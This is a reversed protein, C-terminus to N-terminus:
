PQQTEKYRPFDKLPTDLSLFQPSLSRIEKEYCSTALRISPADGFDAPIRGSWFRRARAEVDLQYTVERHLWLRKTNRTALKGGVSPYNGFASPAFYWSSHDVTHFPLRMVSDQGFGLGHLKKPWVERFCLAAWEMKHRYGVAGGLAVKPYDRALAKLVDTPEGVHYVPIVEVGMKWLQETNALSERWSGGIVDLTFAETVLPSRTREAKIWEALEVIDIKENNKAATFAGSDLVVERWYGLECAASWEKRYAFSVLISPLPASM